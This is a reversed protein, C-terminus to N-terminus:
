QGGFLGTAERWRQEWDFDVPAVRFTEPNYPLNLKRALEERMGGPEWGTHYEQGPRLAYPAMQQQTQIMDSAARWAAQQRALKQQQEVQQRQLEDQDKKYGFEQQWRVSAPDTGGLQLELLQNRLGAEKEEWPFATRGTPDRPERYNPNPEREFTGDPKERLLFPSSTNPTFWEPEKPKAQPMGPAPIYRGKRGTDPDVEDPDWIVSSGDPATRPIPTVDKNAEKWKAALDRDTKVYTSDGNDDFDFIEGTDYTVRTVHKPRYNGSGFVGGPIEGPDQTYIIPNGKSDTKKYDIWFEQPTGVIKPDPM